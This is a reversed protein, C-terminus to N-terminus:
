QKPELVQYGVMCFGEEGMLVGRGRQGGASVSEEGWKPQTARCWGATEETAGEKGWKTESM